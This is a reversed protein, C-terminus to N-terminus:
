NEEQITIPIEIRERIEDYIPIDIGERVELTVALGYYVLDDLSGADERCEVPILLTDGDQYSVVQQGEMIEHQVTGNKVQRGDAEKREVGIEEKPPDFSLNAKRFNRNDPNIPSFWALTITLRRMENLGSLSPPLPLRFEHRRDKRIQGYGIATARQQTCELVRQIDPIGYGLYRTLIKRNVGNGLCRDLVDKSGGWSASHVLLAKLLVAINEDPITYQSQQQLEEVSEYIKAAARSALAVANSTGCCYVSRGTEGPSVPTTAVKQGPSLPSTFVEYNGNMKHSYLQRGGALYIEPKISSRFGYGHSSIPSPLLHNPLIDIRRGYGNPASHDNHMAGVTLSNLSEGPSIIRRNRIDNHIVTLTHVTRQEETLASFQNEPIGMNIEYGVNGGSVCFLVGYKYSLWDLLRACSSQRHFFMKVPDGIAINVIKITPATPGEDGEGEFMRRVSREVLDEFFQDEPIHEGRLDDENSKMIPRIYVPRTLPPENTDLEGHCILSAIATGHKRDRAQYSIGFEDPDEVVLRNRLLDHNVFPDGDLIAVVPDGSVEGVVFEGLEGDPLAEVTCQGTPRFFMVDQSRFLETYRSALVSQISDPPLEAKLAHFHIENIICSSIVNGNGQRVLNELNRHAENRKNRDRRFWLEIEFPILENRSRYFDLDEEWYELVGTERLRDRVDWPRLTKLHSFIEAWKQNGYPLQGRSWQDKLRLLKDIAYRNSMSLFFRGSILTSVDAAEKKLIDIIQHEFEKFDDPISTVFEEINRDTLIGNNDVFADQELVKWIQSSQKANIGDIEHYFIRKKIKPKQYFDEDPEIEDKDIEALWELGDIARVARSFDEIKGITEMVLVYEPEIGAETDTVFSQHMSQFQTTLRDKQRDLSPFHYNPSGFRSEKKPRPSATPNPFILLPKDAM